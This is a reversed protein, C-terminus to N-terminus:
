KPHLNTPSQHLLPKSCSPTLGSLCSRHDQRPRGPRQAQACFRVSGGANWACPKLLDSTQLSCTSQSTFESPSLDRVRRGLLEPVGGATAQQRQGTLWSCKVTSPHLTVDDLIQDKITPATIIDQDLRSDPLAYWTCQVGSEGVTCVNESNCKKEADGDTVRFSSVVAKQHTATLRMPQGTGRLKGAPQM